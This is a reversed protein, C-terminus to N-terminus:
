LVLDAALPANLADTVQFALPEPALSLLAEVAPVPAMAELPLATAQWGDDNAAALPAGKWELVIGIAAEELPAGLDAGGGRAPDREAGAQNDNSANDAVAVGSPEARSNGTAGDGIGAHVNVALAAAPDGNPQGTSDPAAAVLDIVPATAPAVQPLGNSNPESGAVAIV